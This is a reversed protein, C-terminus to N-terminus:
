RNTIAKSSAAKSPAAAQSDPSTRSVSHDANPNNM